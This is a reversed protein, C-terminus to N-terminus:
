DHSGRDGPRRELLAARIRQFVDSWDDLRTQRFLRMTPYWPTDDRGLLWRWDPALPLAVWVAVGLAGALHGIATDCTIVLDLNKMLAATDMFPGSAVDLEDALDLVTFGAAAIQETGDGKQLSVLQVDGLEALSAFCRLPFSRYRDSRFGRSGQWQIGVKLGALGRIRQRWHEVLAPAAHLYPIDAPVNDVDTKFIRPLSLLPVQVDVAPREDAATVLHDIGPCSQMLPVLAKQCELVVTAGRQKLLRAYRAFQITDGLGQECRLVITQGALPEGNWLPCDYRSAAIRDTKQRYEYDPWGQEWNGRVLLILARNLHAQAYEAKLALARDFCALAEDM